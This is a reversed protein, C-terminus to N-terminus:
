NPASLILTNGRQEMDLRKLFSMGLLLEPGEFNELITAQVQRLVIGGIAVSDLRTAHGTTTGNATHSVVPAGGNIGLRRAVAAPIAIDTAGTDVMFEAPAGNIKGPVLYHGRNNRKLIVSTRGNPAPATQLDRNPNRLGELVEKFLLTLIVLAITWAGLLFARGVRSPFDSRNSRVPTGTM